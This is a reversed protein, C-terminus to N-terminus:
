GTLNRSHEGLEINAILQSPLRTNLLVGRAIAELKLISNAVFARGFFLFRNVRILLANESKAFLALRLVCSIRFRSFIM